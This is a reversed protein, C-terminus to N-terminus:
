IASMASSSQRTLDRSASSYESSNDEDSKLEKKEYLFSEGKQRLDKRVKQISRKLEKLERNWECPNHTRQIATSELPGAKQHLSFGKSEM